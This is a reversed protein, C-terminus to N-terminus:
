PQLNEMIRYTVGVETYVNNPGGQSLNVEIMLKGTIRSRRADRIRARIIEMIKEEHRDEKSDAVPRTPRMTASAM